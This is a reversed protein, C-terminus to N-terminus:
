VLCPEWTQGGGGGPQAYAFSFVFFSVLSFIIKKM